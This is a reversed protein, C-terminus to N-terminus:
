GGSGSGRVDTTWPMEEQGARQNVLRALVFLLDSLRNLFILVSPNVDEQHSLAVVHREARRCVTRAMHLAAAGSTGGPLIFGTLPDLEGEAADIEDELDKVWAAQARPVHARTRELAGAQPTALDAGIDFLRSQLQKLQGSIGSDDVFSEALGIAANLEDVAGYAGVRQSTKSVRQGGFLSTEGEDGSRTYIKM